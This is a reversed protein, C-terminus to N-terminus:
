PDASLDEPLLDVALANSMTDRPQSMIDHLTSMIRGTFFDPMSVDFANLHESGELKRPSWTQLMRSQAYRWQAWDLM